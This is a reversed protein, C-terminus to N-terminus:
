TSQPEMRLTHQIKGGEPVHLFTDRVKVQGGDSVSIDRIHFKEYQFLSNFNTLTPYPVGPRSIRGCRPGATAELDDPSPPSTSKLCM